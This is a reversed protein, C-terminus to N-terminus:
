KKGKDLSKEGRGSDSLDVDRGLGSHHADECSVDRGDLGELWPENLNDFSGSGGGLLPKTLELRTGAVLLCLLHSRPSLEVSPPLVGGVDVEGESSSEVRLLLNGPTSAEWALTIHARSSERQKEARQSTSLGRGDRALELQGM